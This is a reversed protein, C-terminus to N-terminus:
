FLDELEDFVIDSACDTLGAVAGVVATQKAVVLPTIGEPLPSAAAALTGAIFGSLGGVLAGKVTARICVQGSPDINNVPDGGAFAYRNANTPDLPADM